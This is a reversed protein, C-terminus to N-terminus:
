AELLPEQLEKPVAPPFVPEIGIEDVKAVGPLGVAAVGGLGLEGVPEARVRRSHHRQNSRAGLFSFDGFDEPEAVAVDFQQEAMELVDSGIQSGRSRTSM